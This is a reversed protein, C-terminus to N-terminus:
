RLSVLIGDGTVEWTVHSLDAVHADAGLDDASRNTLVGLSTCGAARAAKIGAPADEVVLATEPDIGLRQCATLFTDPAPKGADVQDRTVLVQPMPLGAAAGRAQLLDLTCSTGIAVPQGTLAELAEVAGPLAVVGEADSTELYEIRRAAEDAKDAPILAKALSESPMGLHNPLEDLDVGYEGAWITYARVMADHSDVLTGDLDFIIGAFPGLTVEM